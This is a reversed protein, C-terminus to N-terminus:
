DQDFTNSTIARCNKKAILLETTFRYNCKLFFTLLLVKRMYLWNNERQNINEM